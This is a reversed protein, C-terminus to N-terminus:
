RRLTGAQNRNWESIELVHSRAFLAFPLCEAGFASACDYVFLVCVCFPSAFVVPLSPSCRLSLPLSLALCRYSSSFCLSFDLYVFIAVFNLQVNQKITYYDDDDNRPIRNEFSFKICDSQPWQWIHTHTHAYCQLETAYRSLAFLSTRAVQQHQKMLM